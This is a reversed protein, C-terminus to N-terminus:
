NNENEDNLTNITNLELLKASIKEIYQEPTREMLRELERYEIQIDLNQPKAVIYAMLKEIVQVHKDPELKILNEKFLPKNEEIISNLWSKLEGSIKNQTGPQRGGTKPTGPNRGRKKIEM